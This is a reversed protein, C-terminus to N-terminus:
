WSASATYSCSSSSAEPEPGTSGLVGDGAPEAASLPLMVKEVLVREFVDSSSHEIEPAIKANQHWRRREEESKNHRKHM